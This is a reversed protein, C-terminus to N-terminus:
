KLEALLKKAEVAQNGSLNLDLAQQLATRCQARHKLQYEAMGLYYMLEADHNLQRASEALLGEARSYDGQRFVILGLAKAIEPDGPSAQRAKVALPYTKADNKPDRMYFLVLEKQAPAFDPYHNLVAEYTQGALAPDSKQGAIIARVMLAPVYDPSSKLIDEVQSQSAVAQAPKAALDTMALFRRAADAHSFATGNQLANQMSSVADSVRGMSYFARGLDYLVEPDQPQNRATLQLLNLSWAYDGTEFALGGLVHTVLPDNPALKYATKALNFAKQPDQPAYLGALNILAPVNQPTVQLAAEYAAIAKDPAEERQYIAALRLQAISDKPQGSVRKELMARADAGATNPDIALVALCENCEDLGPFVQNFQRAHELAARANAEDGMAYCTMGLHYQADPDADLKAASGQLLSLASSYQGQQYLIWGLTDATSSNTSNLDLAHRALQYGKDLQGLNQAYLYALNNLAKDNDPAVALLKEYAQRAHDYDKGANYIMGMLMLSEVDDPKKALAASLDALAKENENDAAYLRALMLYAPLFDPAMAITQKLTSEAQNTDGRAILVRALLLQLPVAKPYQGILQQVRQQSTDYQKEMLDLDVLQELPALSDPALKRAQDFEARAEPYKKQKVLATGILLPLQANTPFAKELARYVQIANDVRGQGNYAKALLLGAPVFQSQQRILQQLSAIALDYNKNYIQIQALLLSADAYHPDLKLAQNLNSTAKDFENIAAQAEGLQYYVAPLNPFNQAMRELDKIAQATDGMQMELRAKLLLADLNRSDRSLVNGLLTLGGPYDKEAGVLGALAIWAPLYGPTKKVMAQLLSKGTDSDGTLIKFQAYLLTKEPRSSPLEMATKFAQEAQKVDQKALYLNGLASYADSFKPDLKVANQFCAEATKLDRQRFSLTGLAVEVPATDGAAAMKQLRLRTANIDNTAASAEALLIPAEANRPEKDLAFSAADRAEKVNGADLYINGLKLRAEFNNTDLQWARKLAPAAERIRGEDFYIMGLRSWAQVNQPAHKVVNKYEIEAQDLQGAAYYQDARKQHYAAKLKATCGTGAIALFLLLTLSAVWRTSKSM